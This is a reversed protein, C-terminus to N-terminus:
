SRRSEEKTNRIRHRARHQAMSTKQQRCLDQRDACVGSVRNNAIWIFGKYDEILSFIRQSSLGDAVTINRYNFRDSSIQRAVTTLFTVFLLATTLLIKKSRQANLMM